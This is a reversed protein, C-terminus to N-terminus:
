FYVRRYDDIGDGAASFYRSKEPFGPEGAQKWAEFGGERSWYLSNYGQYNGTDHLVHELLSALAKREEISLKPLALRRNVEAKFAAVSLTKRPTSM